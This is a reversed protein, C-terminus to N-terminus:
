QKGFEMKGRVILYASLMMSVHWLSHLVSYNTRSQLAFFILGIFGLLLGCFPLILMRRNLWISGLVGWGLAGGNQIPTNSEGRMNEEHESQSNQNANKTVGSLSPVPNTNDTRGMEIGGDSEDMPNPVANYEVTNRNSNRKRTLKFSQSRAATSRAKVKSKVVLQVVLYVFAFGVSASLVVLSGGGGTSVLFFLTLLCLSFSLGLATDLIITM